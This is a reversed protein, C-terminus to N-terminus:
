TAIFIGSNKTIRIIGDNQEMESTIFEIFADKRVTTANLGFGSLIYDVLPKAETIILEDNFRQVAVNSFCTEIQPRGNELTFKIITDQFDIRLNPDFKHLHISLEQM